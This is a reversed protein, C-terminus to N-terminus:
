SEWVQSHSSQVTLLQVWFMAVNIWHVCAFARVESPSEANYLNGVSRNKSIVGSVGTKTNVSCLDWTKPKPAPTQKTQNCFLCSLPFYCPWATQCGPWCELALHMAKFGGIPLSCINPKNYGPSSFLLKGWGASQCVHPNLFIQVFWEM